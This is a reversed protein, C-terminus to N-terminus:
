PDGGRARDRRPGCEALMRRLDAAVAARDKHLQRWTVRVVRWGEAALVRDRARDREFAARTAHTARGDLEVALRQRPWVFDCEYGLVLVNVLPAPLRETRVLSLFLAEFDNRTYALGADLRALIARLNRVGRRGPHRAMLDPVSLLGTLRQVEVENIARELQHSPLVSALDLLTRSVSTTPIARVVIVEDAPLQSV